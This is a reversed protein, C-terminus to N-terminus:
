LLIHSGRVSAIMMLIASFVMTAVLAIELRM